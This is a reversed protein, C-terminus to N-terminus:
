TCFQALVQGLTSPLLPSLYLILAYLVLEKSSKTVWFAGALDLYLTVAKILPLM